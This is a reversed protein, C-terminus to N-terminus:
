KLDKQSQTIKAKRKRNEGKIPTFEQTNGATINYAKGIQSPITVVTINNSFITKRTLSM